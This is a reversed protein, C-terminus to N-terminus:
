SGVASYITKANLVTAFRFEEIYKKKSKELLVQLHSQGCSVGLLVHLVGEGNPHPNM